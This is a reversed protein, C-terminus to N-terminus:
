ARESNPKLKQQLKSSYIEHLIVSAAGVNGGTHTHTHTHIHACARAHTQAFEHVAGHTKEEEIHKKEGRLM